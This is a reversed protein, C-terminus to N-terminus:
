SAAELSTCKNSPEMHTKRVVWWSRSPGTILGGMVRLLGEMILRGILGTLSLQWYVQFQRNFRASIVNPGYNMPQKGKSTPLAGSGVCPGDDPGLGLDVGMIM